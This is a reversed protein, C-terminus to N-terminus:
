GGCVEHCTLILIVFHHLEIVPIVRAVCAPIGDGSFDDETPERSLEVAASM